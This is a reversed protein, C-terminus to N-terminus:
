SSKKFFAILKKRQDSSPQAGRSTPMTNAELESVAKAANLKITSPSNLETIPSIESFRMRRGSSRWFNSLSSRVNTSDLFKPSNKLFSPKPATKSFLLECGTIGVFILRKKKKIPAIVMYMVNFNIADIYINRTAIAIM